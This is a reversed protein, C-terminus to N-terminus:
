RYTSALLKNKAAKRDALWQKDEADRGAQFEIYAKRAAAQAAKREICPYRFSAAVESHHKMLEWLAETQKSYNM